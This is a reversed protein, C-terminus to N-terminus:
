RQSHLGVNTFRGERALNMLHRCPLYYCQLVFVYLDLRCRPVQICPEFLVSEFGFRKSSKDCTAAAMFNCYRECEKKVKELVYSSLRAAVARLVRPVTKPIGSTSHQKEIDSVIHQTITMQHQLLGAVTKDIRTKLGLLMKVQNWNSEVRNTTTNGATVYSGRALNSGMDRCSNWTKDFYAFFGQRKNYKCSKNLVDYGTEYADLTSSILLCYIVNTQGELYFERHLVKLMDLVRWEVIKKDIVVTWIDYWGPNKEKSYKLVTAITVAQENLCIFDFVPFVRGTATTVVLSGLHYGLNNTGHTFDMALTEGWKAFMLKQVKMQMVIGCTVDMQDQMVLVESDDLMRLAHLTYKVRDERFRPGIRDKLFNAIHTSSVHADDLTKVDDRDQDDLPLAKTTLYPAAQPKTILYSEALMENRVVIEYEDSM